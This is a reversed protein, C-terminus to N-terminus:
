VPSKLAVARPRGVASDNSLSPLPVMAGSVKASPLTTKSAPMTGFRVMPRAPPVIGPGCAALLTRAVVLM